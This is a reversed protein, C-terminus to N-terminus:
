VGGRLRLIRNSVPNSALRGHGSGVRYGIPYRRIRLTRIAVKTAIKRRRTTGRTSMLLIPPYKFETNKAPSPNGCFILKSAAWTGMPPSSIKKSNTSVKAIDKCKPVTHQHQPHNIPNRDLVDKWHAM